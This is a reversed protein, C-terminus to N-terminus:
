DGGRVEGEVADATRQCATGYVRHERLRFALSDIFSALREAGDGKLYGLVLVEGGIEEYVAAQKRGPIRSVGVIRGQHAYATM